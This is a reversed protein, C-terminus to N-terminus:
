FKDGEEFSLGQTRVERSKTNPQKSPCGARCKFFCNCDFLLSTYELLVSEAPNPLELSCSLPAGLRPPSTRLVRGWDMHLNHDGGHRRTANDNRPQM